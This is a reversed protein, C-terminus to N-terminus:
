LFVGGRLLTWVMAFAVHLFALGSLAREAVVGARGLRTLRVKRLAHTGLHWAVVIAGFLLFPGSVRLSPRFTGNTAINNAWLAYDHLVGVTAFTALVASMSVVAIPIRPNTRRIGLAAPLFVHRRAWTGLYTNWRRWFEAPSQALFPYVYREPVDYGAMSALGIQLSALGSHAFYLIFGTGAGAVLFSLYSGSPLAPLAKTLVAQLFAQAVWAGAGLLIRGPGRWGLPQDQQPRGRDSYALCPNVLIFFLCDGRSARKAERDVCFSYASFMAEWGIGITAVVLPARYVLTPVLVYAGACALFLAGNPAGRADRRKGIEYAGLSVIGFYALAIPGRVFVESLDASTSAALLACAAFLAGISLKRSWALRPAVTAYAVFPLLRYAIVAPLQGLTM